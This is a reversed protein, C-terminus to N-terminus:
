RLFGGRESGCLLSSQRFSGPVVRDVCDVVQQGRDAVAGFETVWVAAALKGSVDGRGDTLLDASLGWVYSERLVTQAVTHPTQRTRYHTTRELRDPYNIAFANLAPKWRIM